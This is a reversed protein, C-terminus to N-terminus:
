GGPIRGYKGTSAASSAVLDVLDVVPLPTLFHQESGVEV